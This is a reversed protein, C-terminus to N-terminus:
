NSVGKTLIYGILSHTGLAVQIEHVPSLRSLPSLSVFPEPVLISEVLKPVAYMRTGSSRTGRVPQAQPVLLLHSQPCM